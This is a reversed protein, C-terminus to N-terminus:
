ITCKIPKNINYSNLSLISANIYHTNNIVRIGNNFIGNEDHIHGFIHCKLDLNFTATLLAADGCSLLHKNGWENTNHLTGQGTLDLIGRPPGHTILIDTDEPIQAWYRGIKHRAKNYAWGEGFSPTYPSGFIKINDISIQEHILINVDPFDKKNVLKKEFSTDHNGPVLIKHKINLKSYWELFNIIENHNIAFNKSNGCDGAHIIVDVNEIYKPDHLYKNLLEHQFHTDSIALITM